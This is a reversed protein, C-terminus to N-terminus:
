SEDTEEALPTNKEARWIRCLPCTPQKQKIPTHSVSVHIHKYYIM